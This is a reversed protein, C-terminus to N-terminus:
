AVTARIAAEIDDETMTKNVEGLVAGSEVDVLVLLGTKVEEAFRTRIASGVGVADAAAFLGNVDRDTYDLVVYEVGDIEGRAKVTELKPDLIKCSGCWEAYMLVAAVKTDAQVQEVKAEAYKSEGSCAALVAMLAAMMLYRM